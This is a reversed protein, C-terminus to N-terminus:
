SRLFNPSSERDNIYKLCNSNKYDCYSYVVHGYKESFTPEVRIIGCLPCKCFIIKIFEGDEFNKEKKRGLTNFNCYKKKMSNKQSIM